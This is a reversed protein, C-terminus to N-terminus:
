GPNIHASNVNPLSLTQCPAEVNLTNFWDLFAVVQREKM